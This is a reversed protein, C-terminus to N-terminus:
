LSRKCASPDRTIEVVSQSRFWENVRRDHYRDVSLHNLCRPVKATTDKGLLDSSAIKRGLGQKRFIKSATTNFSARQRSFASTAPELGAGDVMSASPDHTIKQEYLFTGLPVTRPEAAIGRLVVFERMGIRTELRQPRDTYISLPGYGRM